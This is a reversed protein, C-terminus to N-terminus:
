IEGLINYLKATEANDEAEKAKGFPFKKFELAKGCFFLAKDINGLHFYASGMDYYLTINASVREEEDNMRKIIDLAKNYYDLSTKYENAMCCIDGIQIYKDRIDVLMTHSITFKDLYNFSSYVASGFQGNKDSNKKIKKTFGIVSAILKVIGPIAAPLAILVFVLTSFGLSFV